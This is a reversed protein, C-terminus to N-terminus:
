GRIVMGLLAEIARAPTIGPLQIRYGSDPLPTEGGATRLTGEELRLEVTGADDNVAVWLREAEVSMTLVNGREGYGLLLTRRFRGDELGVVSKLEYGTVTDAESLLREFRRVWQDREIRSLGALVEPELPIPYEGHPRVLYPLRREWEEGDVDPLLIQHGEPGFVERGGTGTM